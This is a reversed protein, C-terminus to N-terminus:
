IKIKEKAERIKEKEEVPLGEYMDKWLKLRLVEKKEGFFDLWFTEDFDEQYLLFFMMDEYNTQHNYWFSNLFELAYVLRERKQVAISALVEINFIHYDGEQSFRNELVEALIMKSGNDKPLMTLNELYHNVKNLLQEYLEEKHYSDIHIKKSKPYYFFSGQQLRFRFMNESKFVLYPEFTAIIKKGYAGSMRINDKHVM